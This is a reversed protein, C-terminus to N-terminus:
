RNDGLPEQLVDQPSTSLKTVPDSRPCIGVHPLVFPNEIQLYFSDEATLPSVSLRSFSFRPPSFLPSPSHNWRAENSGCEPKMPSPSSPPSSKVSTNLRWQSQREWFETSSCIWLSPTFASLFCFQGPGWMSVLPLMHRTLGSNWTPHSATPAAAPDVTRSVCAKAARPKDLQRLEPTEKETSQASTGGMLATVQQHCRCTHGPLAPIKGKFVPARWKDVLDRGWLLVKLHMMHMGLLGSLSRLCIWFESSDDRQKPRSHIHM